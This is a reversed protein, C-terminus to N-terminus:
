PPSPRPRGRHYTWGPPAPPKLRGRQYMWGIADIGLGWLAAGLADRARSRLARLHAEADILAEIRREAAENEDTFIILHRCLGDFLSHRLRTREVAEAHRRLADM